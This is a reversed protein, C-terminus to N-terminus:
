GFYAKGLLIWAILRLMKRTIFAWSTKAALLLNQNRHRGDAM